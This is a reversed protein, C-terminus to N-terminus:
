EKKTWSNLVSDLSNISDVSINKKILKDKGIFEWEYYDWETWTGNFKIYNDTWTVSINIQWKLSEVKGGKNLKIELSKWDPIYLEKGWVLIKHDENWPATITLNGDKSISASFNLATGEWPKVFGNKVLIFHAYRNQLEPTQNFFPDGLMKEYLKANPNMMADMEAKISDSWQYTGEIEALKTKLAEIQYNMPIATLLYGGFLSNLWSLNIHKFLDGVNKWVDNWVKWINTWLQELWKWLWELNINPIKIWKVLLAGIIWGAIAAAVTQHRAIYDKVADAGNWINKGLVYMWEKGFAFMTGDELVIPPISSLNQWELGIDKYDLKNAKMLITENQEKGGVWDLQVKVFKKNWIAQDPNMHMFGDKTIEIAPNKTILSDLAVKSEKSNLWKEIAGYQKFKPKIEIAWPKIQKETLWLSKLYDMAIKWEPTKLEQNTIKNDSLISEIKHAIESIVESREFHWLPKQLWNKEPNGFVNTKVDGESNKVPKWYGDMLDTTTMKHGYSNNGLIEKSVNSTDWGLWLTFTKILVDWWMSWKDIDIVEVKNKEAADLLAKSRDDKNKAYVIQTWNLGKWAEKYIDNISKVNNKYKDLFKIMAYAADKDNSYWKELSLFIKNAQKKETANDFKMILVQNGVTFITTTKPDLEKELKADFKKEAGTASLTEKPKSIKGVVSAPKKVVSAPKKVVPAPKEVVPTKEKDIEKDIAKIVKDIMGDIWEKSQKNKSRSNYWKREKQLSKKLQKLSEEDLWELQSEKFKQLEKLDKNSLRWTNGFELKETM